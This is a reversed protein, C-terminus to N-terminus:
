GPTEQGQMLADMRKSVLALHNRRIFGAGEVDGVRMCRELATVESLLDTIEDQWVAGPLLRFWMRATLYFLRDSFERLPKNRIVAQIQKHIDMNIQGFLRYDPTDAAAARECAKKIEGLAAVIEDSAPYPNSAGIMEALRIRLFYIDKLQELGIDTVVTGHGQRSEILGDHQLWQLVRRLPTRSVGLEEALDREKIIEGPQYDLLCIRERLLDYLHYARRRPENLTSEDDNQHSHDVM